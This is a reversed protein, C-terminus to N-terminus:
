KYGELSNSNRLVYGVAKRLSPVVMEEFWPNRRMWIRNRPSPHVLPFFQPLYKEFNRVTETLTAERGSELYYAQAYSGILLTLQLRPMHQRLLGHWRPACEPRPPLDGGKGRGPYCFGMPMIGFIRPDYFTERDVALWRRLEEGSADNWPIGTAHVKTGPAQGVILIRSEEHISFVPRPGLPLNAECIRCREVRHVLADFSESM